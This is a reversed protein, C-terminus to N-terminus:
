SLPCTDIDTGFLKRKKKLQVPNAPVAASALNASLEIRGSGFLM